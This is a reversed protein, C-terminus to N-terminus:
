HQHGVGSLNMILYLIGILIIIVAAILNTNFRGNVLDLQNKAKEKFFLFLLM